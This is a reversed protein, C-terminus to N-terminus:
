FGGGANARENCQPRRRDTPITLFLDLDTDLKCIYRHDVAWQEHAHDPEIAPANILELYGKGLDMGSARNDVRSVFKLEANIQVPKGGTRIAYLYTITM